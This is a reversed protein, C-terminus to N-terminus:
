VGGTRRDAGDWPTPKAKLYNAAGLLAAVLALLALDHIGEGLNFHQPDVIMVAVAGAAGSIIASALGKLWTM